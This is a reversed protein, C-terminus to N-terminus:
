AFITIRIPSSGVVEVTHLYREGLQAVPDDVGCANRWPVTILIGPLEAPYPNDNMTIGIPSSGVVEVMDLYREELQAVPDFALTWRKSQKDIIVM